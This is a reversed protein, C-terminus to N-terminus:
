PVTATDKGKQRTLSTTLLLYGINTAIRGELEHLKMNREELHTLTM